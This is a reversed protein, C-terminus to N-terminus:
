EKIIIIPITKGKILELTKVNGESSSSLFAQMGLCIGLIKTRKIQVAELIAQDIGTKRLTNMAKRFSGVGPLILSEACKIEHPDCRVM